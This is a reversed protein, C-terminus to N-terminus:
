ETGTRQETERGTTGAMRRKKMLLKPAIERLAIDLVVGEGENRKCNM